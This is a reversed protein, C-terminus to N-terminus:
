AYRQALRRFIRRLVPLMRRGFLMFVNGWCHLLDARYYRAMARVDQGVAYEPPPSAVGSAIIQKEREAQRGARRLHLLGLLFLFSSALLRFPRTPDPRKVLCLYEYGFWLRDDALFDCDHHRKLRLVRRM